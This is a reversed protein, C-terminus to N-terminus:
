QEFGGNIAASIAADADEASIAFFERNASVRTSKLTEHVLKEVQAAQASRYESAVIFPTPVGSNQSIQKARDQPSVTTTGIKVLGPMSPNTMVYIFGRSDERRSRLACKVAAQPTASHGALFGDRFADPNEAAWISADREGATVRRGDREFAQANFWAEFASKGGCLAAAERMAGGFLIWGDVVTASATGIQGGALAALRIANENHGIANM